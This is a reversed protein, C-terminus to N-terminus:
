DEGLKLAQAIKMSSLIKSIVAFCVVLMAIVCVAIRLMDLGNTIILSELTSYTPSYALLILPVFLVASLMGILVGYLMPIISGFFHEIILMKRIETMSLGMARYIGFILERSKISTIWYIMFGIVSLILVVIFTITLMGSTIQFYPNEKIEEAQLYTDYMTDIVINNNNFYDYFKESSKAKAWIEYPETDYIKQVTSLNAVVLYHDLFQDQGNKDKDYIKSEYTPWADVIAVVEFNSTPLANGLKNNRMVSVTDGVGIHKQEALNRSIIAGNPNKALNNLYYNIHFKTSDEPLFCTPGFEDTIIGQFTVCNKIVEDTFLGANKDVIVKTYSEAIESLGTYKSYDPEYYEFESPDLYGAQITASNDEWLEKFTILAGVHYKNRIEENETISRATTANFIGLSLTLVLFIIIFSQTKINSSIQMFGAFAAPGLKKKLIAYSANVLLPIIRILILALALIFITSSFYIIPDLSGGNQIETFITNKNKNSTYLGYISIILLIFDLFIKQWLPNKKKKKNVKQEVISFNAYKLVPLTMIITALIAAIIAYLLAQLTFHVEITTLVSFELFSRTSGFIRCFVYGLPFGIVLAVASILLGQFTYSLILQFKSVGRSKLMAIENQEINIIQNSVMFIFVCLLILVPIQFIWMTVTVQTKGARYSVVSDEYNFDAYYMPNVKCDQRIKNDAIVFKNIIDTKIEQYDFVAYYYDKVSASYANPNLFLSKFVNPAVFIDKSYDLPDNVWYSDESEKGKFVGIIKFKVYEGNYLLNDTIITDGVVIKASTLMRESIICEITNDDTITDSYLNGYMFSIHKDLDSLTNIAVKVTGVSPREVELHGNIEDTKFHTIVHKAKIPFMSALTEANTEPNTFLKSAPNKLREKTLSSHISAVAPYKGTTEMQNSLEDTLMKQLAASTYMPNCCAIAVLLMSGILLCSILWKKNALKQIIFKLM